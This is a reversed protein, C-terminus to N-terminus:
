SEDLYDRISPLVVPPGELTRLMRRLSPSDTALTGDHIEQSNQYLWSLVMEVVRDPTNPVGLTRENIGMEDAVQSVLRYRLSKDTWRRDYNHPETM